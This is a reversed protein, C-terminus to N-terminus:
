CQDMVRPMVTLHNCTFKISNDRLNRHFRNHGIPLIQDHGSDSRCELHHEQQLKSQGTSRAMHHLYKLQTSYDLDPSANEADVKHLNSIDQTNDAVYLQHYDGERVLLNCSSYHFKQGVQIKIGHETSMLVENNESLPFDGVYM